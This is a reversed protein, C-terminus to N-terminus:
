SSSSRHDLFQGGVRNSYINKIQIKRQIMSGTMSRYKITIDQGSSISRLHQYPMLFGIGGLSIDNLYIPCERGNQLVAIAKSCTSERPYHRNNLTCLTSMGCNCRVTKKRVGPPIAIYRKKECRPCTVRIRGDKVNCTQSKGRM